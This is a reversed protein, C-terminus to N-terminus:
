PAFTLVRYTSSPVRVAPDLKPLMKGTVYVGFLPGTLLQQGASSLQPHPPACVFCGRRRVTRGGTSPGHEAFGLLDQDGYGTALVPLL